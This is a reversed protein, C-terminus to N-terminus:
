QPTPTRSTAPPMTPFILTIVPPNHAPPTVPPPPRRHRPALPSTPRSTHPQCRRYPSVHPASTPTRRHPTTPPHRHLSIFPASTVPSVSRHRQSPSQPQARNPRLTPLTTTSALPTSRRPAATYVHPAVRPTQSSAIPNALLHDVAAVSTPTCDRTHSTCVPHLRPSACVTQALHCPPTVSSPPLKVTSHPPQALQSTSLTGSALLANAVHHLRRSHVTPSQSSSPSRYTISTPFPSPSFSLSLCPHHFFTM